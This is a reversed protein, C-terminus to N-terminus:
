LKRHRIAYEEICANLLEPLVVANSDEMSITEFQKGVGDKKKFLIVNGQSFKPVYMTDSWYASETGGFFKSRHYGKSDFDVNGISITEKKEFILKVLRRVIIPEIVQKSINILKYWLDEDGSFSFDIEDDKSMISFSYNRSTEIGYTSKRVAHYSIASVDKYFMKKRGYEVFNNRFTIKENSWFKPIELDLANKKDDDVIKKILKLEDEYKKRMNQTGCIKIATKLLATAKDTLHLENHIRVSIGRIAEAAHDRVVKSQSDKDLGAKNLKNLHSELVTIEKQIKKLKKNQVQDTEESEDIKKQWQKGIEKHCKECLVSGDDYDHYRKANTDACNDCIDETEEDESLNVKNLREISDYISKYTPNLINKETKEGHTVFIGQFTKIYKSDKHHQYLDAYVDSISKAVTKRFESIIEASATQENNARYKKTFVIWFKDSNVIENWLDVSEKLYIANSKKFLLLCYLVALNKKYFYATSNDGHSATKWTQISKVIDNNQLYKISKEDITDSISFWFFYEKLNNKPNQLKKLADNVSDENRYKNPLGMDLDYTPFDDIKLRNIIEKYRKLIEKQNINVDLGFIRYANQEILNSM